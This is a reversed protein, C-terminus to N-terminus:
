IQDGQIHSSHLKDIIRRTVGYEWEMQDGPIDAPINEYNISRIVGSEGKM